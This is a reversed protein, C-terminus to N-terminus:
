GPSFLVASSIKEDLGSLLASCSDISLISFFSYFINKRGNKTTSRYHTFWRGSNGNTLKLLFWAQTSTAKIQKVPLFHNFRNVSFLVVLLM